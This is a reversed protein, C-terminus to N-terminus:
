RLPRDLEKCARGFTGKEKGVNAATTDQGFGIVHDTIGFFGILEMIANKQALGLLIKFSFM